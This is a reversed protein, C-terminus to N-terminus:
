ASRSRARFSTRSCRRPDRRSSRPARGAGRQAPQRVVRARHVRDRRGRRHQAGADHDHVLPPRARSPLVARGRHRPARVRVPVRRVLPDGAAGRPLRASRAARPDGVARGRRRSPLWRRVDARATTTLLIDLLQTTLFPSFRKTRAFILLSGLSVAFYVFPIIGVPSGFALYCTGWVISVPLVLVALLVLLSKKQRLDEDDRPDAGIRTLWAPTRM